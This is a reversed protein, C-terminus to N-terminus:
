GFARKASEINGLGLTRIQDFMWTYDSHAGEGNDFVVLQMVFRKEKKSFFFQFPFSLVKIWDAFFKFSLFKEYKSKKMLALVVM